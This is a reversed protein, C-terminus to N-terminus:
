KSNLKYDTGYSQNDNKVQNKHMVKQTLIPINPIESIEEGFENFSFQAMQKCISCKFGPNDVVVNVRFEM